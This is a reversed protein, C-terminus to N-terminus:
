PSTVLIRFWFHSFTNFIYILNRSAIDPGWTRRRLNKTTSLGILEFSLDVQKDAHSSSSSPDLAWQFDHTELARRTGALKEFAEAKESLDPRRSSGELADLTRIIVTAQQGSKLLGM